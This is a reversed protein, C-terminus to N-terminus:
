FYFLFRDLNGAKGTNKYKRYIREILLFEFLGIMLIEGCLGRLGFGEIGIWCFADFFGVM